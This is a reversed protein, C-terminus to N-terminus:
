RLLVGCVGVCIYVCWYLFCVEVVSQVKLYDCVGKLEDVTPAPEVALAKAVKRGDEQSMKADLYIPYVVKWQINSFSAASSSSAM